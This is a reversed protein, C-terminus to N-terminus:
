VGLHGGRRAPTLEATRLTRTNQVSGVGALGGTIDAGQQAAFADVGRQQCSPAFLAGCGLARRKLRLLASGLDVWQQGLCVLHCLRVRSLSRSRRWSAWACVMMSTWFFTEVSSPSSVSSFGCPADQHVCNINQCGIHSHRTGAGGQPHM